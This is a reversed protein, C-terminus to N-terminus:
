TYKKKIKESSIIDEGKFKDYVDYVGDNDNDTYRGIMNGQEDYEFNLDTPQTKVWRNQRDNRVQKPFRTKSVDTFYLFISEESRESHRLRNNLM